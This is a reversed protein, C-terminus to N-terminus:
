YPRSDTLILILYLVLGLQIFVLQFFYQIGNNTIIHCLFLYAIKQLGTM